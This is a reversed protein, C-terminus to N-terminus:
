DLLDGLEGMWDDIARGIGAPTDERIFNYSSVTVEWQEPRASCFEHKTGTPIAGPEAKVFQEPVNSPSLPNETAM